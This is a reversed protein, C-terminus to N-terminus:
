GDLPKAQQQRGVEEDIEFHALRLRIPRADAPQHAAIDPGHGKLSYQLDGDDDHHRPEYSAESSSSGVRLQSSGAFCPVDCGQTGRRTESRPRKREAM